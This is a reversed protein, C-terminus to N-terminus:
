RRSRLGLARDRPPAILQVALQDGEGQLSFHTPWSQLFARLEMGTADRIDLPVGWHELYASSLSSVLLPGADRAFNQLVEKIDLLVAQLHVASIHVACGGISHTTQNTQNATQARGAGASSSRIESLLGAWAWFATAAAAGVDSALGFAGLCASSCVDAGYRADHDKSALDAVLARFLSEIAACTRALDCVLEGDLRGDLRGATPFDAVEGVVDLEARADQVALTALALPICVASGSEPNAGASPTSASSLAVSSPMSDQMQVEGSSMESAISCPQHFPAEFSDFTRWSCADLSTSQDGTDSGIHYQIADAAVGGDSRPAASLAPASCGVVLAASVADALGVDPHAIANRMKSLRSVRSALDARGHARLAQKVKSISPRMSGLCPGAAALVVELRELEAEPVTM